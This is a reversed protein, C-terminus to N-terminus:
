NDNVETTSLAMMVFLIEDDDDNDDSDDIFADEEVDEAVEDWMQACPDSEFSIRTQREVTTDLKAKKSDQGGANM